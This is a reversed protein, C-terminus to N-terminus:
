LVTMKADTLMTPQILFIGSTPGVPQYMNVFSM